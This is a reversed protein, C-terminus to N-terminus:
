NVLPSFNAQQYTTRQLGVSEEWPLPKAYYFGQMLTCGLGALLTVQTETEVGEAVVELGLRQALAMITRVIELSKDDFTIRSVFSRDIKLTDIPLDHVYSLSSYGTGFDDMALKLGLSRLQTLLGIMRDPHEMVAGETVELKLQEPRVGTRALLAELWRALDPDGLQRPSLNVAIRLQEDPSSRLRECVEELVWRGIGLILGTEEALPIFDAPSVLGREPQRWRLLAEYSTAGDGALSVIPQYVLFFERKTLAQRLDGELKQRAVARERMAKDFYSFPQQTKKAEFMAIDADRLLDEASPQEAPQKVAHAPAPRVVGISASMQVLNGDLRYPEALVTSIRELLATMSAETIHELLLVFEDGGLRAVVDGHRVTRQLRRAVEALLLDGVYHGLSDNIVKFRNLDLFLVATDPTEGAPTEGPPDAADASRALIHTLRRVLLLRNPLGTLPDFIGRQSIDTLSGTVSVAVGAANYVAVGRSLMWRYDAPSPSQEPSTAAGTSMRFESEFQPTRGALHEGLQHQVRSLDDPHVADFFLASSEEFATEPYGLMAAFRPSYYVRNTECDWDWLGDNVGSVARAYRAESERVGAQAASLSALMSDIGQGVRALEDRGSLAVRRSADGSKAIEGVAASLQAFRRLLGQLLLLLLLGAALGTSFTLATLVRRSRQAQAYIVRPAEVELLLAPRGTLDPLLTYGAVTTESLPRSLSGSGALLEDRAELVNQPLTEDDLRYFGTELQVLNGFGRAVREDIFKGIVVSGRVPGRYDSTVIPSSAILLVEDPLVVIGSARHSATQELYAKISEPLPIPVSWSLNFARSTVIKGTTDTIAFFNVNLTKSMDDSLNSKLYGPNRDDMFAYTDDWAAYDRATNALHVTEREWAGEARGLNGLMQESELRTFGQLLVRSAGLYLGLVVIGIAALTCLAFQIRFSM